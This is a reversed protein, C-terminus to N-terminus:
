PKPLDFWPALRDFWSPGLIVPEFEKGFVGVVMRPEIADAILVAQLQLRRKQRVSTNSDGIAACVAKRSHDLVSVRIKEIYCVILPALQKQVHVGVSFRLEFQAAPWVVRV